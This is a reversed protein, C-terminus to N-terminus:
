YIDEPIDCNQTSNKEFTTTATRKNVSVIIKGDADIYSHIQKSTDKGLYTFPQEYTLEDYYATIRKNNKYLAQINDGHVNFSTRITNGHEDPQTEKVFPNSVIDFNKDIYYYLGCNYKVRRIGQKNYEGIESFETSTTLNDLNVIISKSGYIYHILLESDKIVGYMKENKPLASPTGDTLALMRPTLNNGKNDFIYFGNETKVPLHTIPENSKLMSDSAALCDKCVIKGNYLLAKQKKNKYTGLYYKGDKDLVQFHVFRMRNILNHINGM